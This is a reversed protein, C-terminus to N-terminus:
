LQLKNERAIVENRSVVGGYLVDDCGCLFMQGGCAPCREVDCMMHHYQGRRAGCDHCRGYWTPFMDRKSGRKIREYKKGGIVVFSVGCGDSTAMDRNCAGCIAM